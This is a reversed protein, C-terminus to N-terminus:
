ITNYHSRQYCGQSIFLVLTKLFGNWYTFLLRIEWLPRTIYSSDCKTWRARHESNRQGFDAWSSNQDSEQNDMSFVLFTFNNYIFLTNTSRYKKDVPNKILLIRLKKQRQAKSRNCTMSDLASLAPLGAGYPRAQMLQARALHLHIIRLWPFM